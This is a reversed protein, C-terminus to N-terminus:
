FDFDEDDEGGSVEITECHSDLLAKLDALFDDGMRGTVFSATVSNGKAQVEEVGEFYKGYKDIIVEFESSDAGLSKVINRCEDVEWSQMANFLAKFQNTEEKSKCTVIFDFNCEM